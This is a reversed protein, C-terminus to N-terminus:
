HVLYPLTGTVAVKAFVYQVDGDNDDDKEDVVMMM